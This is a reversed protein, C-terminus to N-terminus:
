SGKEVKVIITAIVKKHLELIVEHTGLSTIPHDMKIQTKNVNYGKEDLSKKIQKSSIQGFMMEQKGTQVKFIFKDKELKEKVAQLDKVKLNEELAEEAVQRGVQKLNSNFAMVQLSLFVIMISFFLFIFSALLMNKKAKKLSKCAYCRQYIAQPFDPIIRAVWYSLTVVVLDHSGFCSKWTLKEVHGDFLNFFDM